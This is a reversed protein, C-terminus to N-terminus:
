LYLRVSLCVSVSFFLHVFLSTCVCVGSMGRFFQCSAIICQLGYLYFIVSLPQCFRYVSLFGLLPPYGKVSSCSVVSISIVSLSDLPRISLCISLCICLSLSLSQLASKLHLTCSLHSEWQRSLSPSLVFLRKM